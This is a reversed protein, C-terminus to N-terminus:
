VMDQCQTGPMEKGEWLAQLGQLPQARRCARDNEGLAGVAGDQRQGDLEKGGPSVSGRSIANRRRFDTRMAKQFCYPMTSFFM